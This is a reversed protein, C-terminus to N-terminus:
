LSEVGTPVWVSTDQVTPSKAYLSVTNWPFTTRQTNVGLHVSKCKIEVMSDNNHNDLITSLLHAKMGM